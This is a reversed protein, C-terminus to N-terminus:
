SNNYKEINNHEESALLYCWSTVQLLLIGNPILYAEVWKTFDCQMVLIYKTKDSSLPYPGCVDVVLRAMNYGVRYTKKTNKQPPSWM